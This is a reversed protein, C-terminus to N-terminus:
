IVTIVTSLELNCACSERGIKSISASSVSLFFFPRFHQSVGGRETELVAVYSTHFQFFDHLIM